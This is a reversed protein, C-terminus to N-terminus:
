FGKKVVKVTSGKVVKGTVKQTGNNNIEYILEKKM